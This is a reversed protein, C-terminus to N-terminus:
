VKFLETGGYDFESVSYSHRSENDPQDLPEEM